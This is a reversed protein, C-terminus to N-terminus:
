HYYPFWEEDLFGKDGTIYWQSHEDKILAAKTKKADGLYGRMLQPGGILVMGSEGIPLTKHTEPDVIKFATGPLPLGVTGPKNSIHVHWDSTHMADPLNVSAVPAVETCGYGEYIPLHFREKFAQSVEPAIKEAGAVALRITSLMLPHLKPQKCYLKYLSSTGCLVTVEHTTILKGIRLADTPDPHCVFFLGELLPMLMTVTLGFAHFLPLTSLAADSEEM